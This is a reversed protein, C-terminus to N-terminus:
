RPLWRGHWGAPPRDARHAGLIPRPDRGGSVPPSEPPLPRGFWVQSRRPAVSCRSWSPYAGLLPARRHPSRYRCRTEGPHVDSSGRRRARCVFSCWPTPVPCPVMAEVQTNPSHAAASTAADCDAACEPSPKLLLEPNVLYRRDFWRRSPLCWCSARREIQRRAPGRLVDNNNAYRGGEPLITASRTARPFGFGCFIPEGVKTRGNGKFLQYNRGLQPPANFSVVLFEFLFDAQTMKLASAPPSEVM